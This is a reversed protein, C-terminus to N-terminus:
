HDWLVLTLYALPSGYLVEKLYSSKIDENEMDRIKEEQRDMICRICMASIKM